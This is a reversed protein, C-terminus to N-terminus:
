GNSRTGLYNFLSLNGISATAQLATNRAVEANALNTAAQNNAIASMATSAADLGSLPISFLPM